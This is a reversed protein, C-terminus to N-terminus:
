PEEMGEAGSLTAARTEHELHQSLQEPNELLKDFTQQEALTKKLQNQNYAIGRFTELRSVRKINGKERKLSRGIKKELEELENLLFVKAIHIGERDLTQFGSPYTVLDGKIAEEFQPSTQMQLFKLRTSLQFSKGNALAAMQVLLTRM